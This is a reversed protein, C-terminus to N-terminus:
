RGKDTLLHSEAEFFSVARNALVAVVKGDPDTLTYASTSVDDPTGRFVEKAEALAQGRKLTKVM